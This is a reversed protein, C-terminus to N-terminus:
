TKEIRKSALARESPLRIDWALGLMKMTRIVIWSMDFQYWLLGHKASSPFAHHNNHWGEGMALVGCIVNNTSHDNSRFHRKGFIHCVSNISWTIHHSVFIRVLGGWVFGLLAGFWPSGGTWYEIGFGLVAPFILSFLVFFYYYRDVAMLFKDKLLDPVYKELNPRSWYGTFLWGVQAHWFGKIMGWTTTGHLHPSHPDGAQDSHGHHRRHVACWVIPSGEVSFSGIVMWMARVWPYTEFSKHSMLRHFGVTIGLSTLCWGLVVMALYSWGMWGYWTMLLGAFACGFLPWLVANLMIIKTQMSAKPYLEGESLEPREEGELAYSPRSGKDAAIEREIKALEDLRDVTEEIERDPKQVNPEDAVPLKNIM